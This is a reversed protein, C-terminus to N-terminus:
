LLDTSKAGTFNHNTPILENTKLFHRTFWKDFHNIKNKGKEVTIRCKLSFNPTVILLSATYYRM